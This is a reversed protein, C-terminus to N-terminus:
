STTASRVKRVAGNIQKRYKGKTTKDIFQGAKEAWRNVQDPHKKAYQTAAGAAGAVVTLKRLLRAM